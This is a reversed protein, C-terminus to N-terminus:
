TCIYYISFAKWFLAEASGYVALSKVCARASLSLICSTWEALMPKYPCTWAQTMQWLLFPLRSKPKPAVHVVMAM